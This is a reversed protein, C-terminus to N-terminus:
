APTLLEYGFESIEDGFRNNMAEIAEPFEEYYSQWPRKDKTTNQTDIDIDPCNHSQLFRNVEDGLNEYKLWVDPKHWFIEGGVVLPLKAFRRIFAPFPVDKSEGERRGDAMYRLWWTVALDYPNRQISWTVEGGLLHTKMEQHKELDDMGFHHYGRMSQKSAHARNLIVDKKM